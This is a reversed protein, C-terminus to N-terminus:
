QKKTTKMHAHSSASIPAKRIGYFWIAWLSFLTWFGVWAYVVERPAAKPFMGKGFKVWVLTEMLATAVCIWAMPGLKKCTPDSIWQYYERVGPIGVGWWLFLRAVNIPHPPPIWLVFKLFFANLEAMSVVAMLALCAAMRKFSTLVEWNYSEVNVGTRKRMWAYDKMSFFDALKLGLTFGLFNCVLIDLIIHDWWCEAFNPLLHELSIELIEFSISLAWCLYSDRLLLAKGFWGLFHALMFEDNVTDMLNRFNSQTDNPTYLECHDAYSREPLSVGLTPDFSKLALRVDEVRSVVFLEIPV